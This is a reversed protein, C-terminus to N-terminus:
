AFRASAVDKVNLRSSLTSNSGTRRRGFNIRVTPLRVAEMRMYLRICPRQILPVITTYQILARLTPENVTNASILTLPTTVNVFLRGNMAVIIRKGIFLAPTYISESEPEDESDPDLDIRLELELETDSIDELERDPDRERDRELDRDRELEPELEPPSFDRRTVDFPGLRRLVEVFFLERTAFTPGLRRLVKVFFLATNGM